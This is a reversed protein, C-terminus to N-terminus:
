QGNIVMKVSHKSDPGSLSFLAMFPDPQRRFMRIAYILWGGGRAPGAAQSTRSKRGPPRPGRWAGALLDDIAFATGDAGSIIYAGEDNVASEWLGVSTATGAALM